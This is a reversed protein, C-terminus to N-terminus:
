ALGLVRRAEERAVSPRGGAGVNGESAEADLVIAVEDPAGMRRGSRAVTLTRERLRGEGAGLGVWESRLVRLAVHTGPHPSTGVLVVGRERARAALRRLDPDTLALHPGLVVIDMGDISAAVIAAAEAGPHPVLALRSLDIGWRAAAVVGIHPLGLIAAWSGERSARAILALILSTSGEASVVAGRRLVNGPLLGAVRSDVPLAGARPSVTAGTEPDLALGSIVGLRGEAGALAARARALRDEATELVTERSAPGSTETEPSATVTM